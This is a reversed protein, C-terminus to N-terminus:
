FILFLSFISITKKQQNTEHNSVTAIIPIQTPNHHQQNTAHLDRSNRCCGKNKNIAITKQLVQLLGEQPRRCTQDALTVIQIEKRFFFFFDNENQKRPLCRCREEEQRPFLRM